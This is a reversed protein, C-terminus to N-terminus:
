KKLNKIKLELAKMKPKFEADLVAFHSYNQKQIQGIVLMRLIPERRFDELTLADPNVEKLQFYTQNETKVAAVAKETIDNYVATLERIIANVNVNYNDNLADLELQNVRLQEKKNKEERDKKSKKKETEMAASTYNGKVAAVFYGDVKERISKKEAAQKTYILANRVSEIPQQDIMNRLVSPTVGLALAAPSLELFYPNEPKQEIIEYPTIVEARGEKANETRIEEKLRDPLNDPLNPYVYFILENVAKGLKIEEFDFRIDASQALRKQAELIIKQKFSGYLAYKDSVDLIEKLKQVEIRRKGIGEYQKLLDYVRIVMPNHLQGCIYAYRTKNLLTFRKLQILHPKLEEDIFVEIHSLEGDKRKNVKIKTFFGTFVTAEKGEEDVVHFVLEKERLRRAAEVIKEYTDGKPSLSFNEIIDKFYLKYSSDTMNEDALNMYAQTFIFTQLVSLKYKAEILYNTKRFYKSQQLVKIVEM